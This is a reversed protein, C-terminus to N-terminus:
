HVIVYFFSLLRVQLSQIQQQMEQSGHGEEELKVRKAKEQELASEASLLMHKVKALEQNQFGELQELNDRAEGLQKRCEELERQKEQLTENDKILLKAYEELEKIREKRKELRRVYVFYNKNIHEKLDHVEKELEEERTGGDSKAAGASRRVQVQGVGPERDSESDVEEVLKAKLKNFM